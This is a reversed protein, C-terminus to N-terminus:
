WMPPLSFLPPIVVVSICIHLAMHLFSEMALFFHVCLLELVCSVMKDILAGMTRLLLRSFVDRGSRIGLAKAAAASGFGRRHVTPEKRRQQNGAKIFGSNAGSSSPPPLRLCFSISTSRTHKRPAFSAIINHFWGVGCHTPASHHPHRFCARIRRAPRFLRATTAGPLHHTTRQPHCQRDQRAASTTTTKKAPAPWRSQACPGAIYDPRPRRNAVLPQRDRPTGSVPWRNGESWRTWRHTTPPTRQVCHGSRDTTTPKPRRNACYNTAASAHSRHRSSPPGKIM